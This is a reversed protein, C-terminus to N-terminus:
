SPARHPDRRSLYSVRPRDQHHQDFAGVPIAQQNGADWIQSLPPLETAPIPTGFSVEASPAASQPMGSGLPPLNMACGQVMTKMLEEMTLGAEQAAQLQGAAGGCCGQLSGPGVDCPCALVGSNSNSTPPLNSRYEVKGYHSCGGCICVDGCSVVSTGPTSPAFSSFAASIVPSPCYSSPPPPPPYSSPFYQQQPFPTYSPVNSVPSPFTPSAPASSYFHQPLPAPVAYVLQQPQQVPIYQQQSTSAFPIYPQPQQQQYPNFPASVAFYYLPQQQQQQPPLPLPPQGPAFM